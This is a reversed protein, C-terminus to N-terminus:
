LRTLIYIYINFCKIVKNERAGGRSPLITLRVGKRHADLMENFLDVEFDFFTCEFLEELQEKTMM